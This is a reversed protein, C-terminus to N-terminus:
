LLLLLLLLSPPPPLQSTPLDGLRARKGIFNRAAGNGVAHLLGMVGCANKITQRFWLVPETPGRADYEPLLADEALRHSEYAASIPFVLLVALAPRPVFALLEPETLSLVDHVQLAPSLGLERLLATMLGPNAELPIFAPASASPDPNLVQSPSASTSTSAMKPPPLNPSPRGLQKVKRDAQVTHSLIDYTDLVNAITLTTVLLLSPLKM